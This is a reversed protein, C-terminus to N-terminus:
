IIHVGLGLDSIFIYNDYFYIKGPYELPKPDEIAFEARISDLQKFVPQWVYFQQTQTCEDDCSSLSITAIAFLFVFVPFSSFKHM